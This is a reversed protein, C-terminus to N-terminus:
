VQAKASPQLRKSKAELESPDVWGWDMLRFTDSDFGSGIDTRYMLNPATVQKMRTYAQSQAQEITSGSGSIICISGDRLTQLYQDDEKKVGMLYIGDMDSPLTILADESYKRFIEETEFPFPPMVACVCVSIKNSVSFNKQVGSAVEFMLEGLDGKITEMKLQITPYGFRCTPELPYIETETAICNIDFYGVYGEAKLAPIVKEITEQYLTSKKDTWYMSTGMEGTSPGINGVMLKKHEFSVEIPEIFDHGNFFGSVGVEVGSIHKQLEFSEIKAGYTKYHELTAILDSGDEKQGVYTLSKEDQIKGNPKVVFRGPNARIFEIAQDADHFEMHPLVTLGYKKFLSQGESRNSEWEDSKETGGWVTYGEARLEQSLKGFGGDDILIFDAWKLSSFYDDVKDILGDGVSKYKDDQIWMRVKHGEKQFRLSLALGGGWDSIILINM